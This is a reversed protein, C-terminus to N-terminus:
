GHVIDDPVKVLQAVGNLISGVGQALGNLPLPGQPAALTVGVAIIFILFVIKLAMIARFSHPTALVKLDLIFQKSVPQIPNVCLNHRIVSNCIDPFDLYTYSLDSVFRIQAVCGSM